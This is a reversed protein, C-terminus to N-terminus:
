HLESDGRVRACACIMLGARCIAELSALSALRDTFVPSKVTCSPIREQLNANHREQRTRPYIVTCIWLGAIDHTALVFASYKALTGLPISILIDPASRWFLILEPRNRPGVSSLLVAHAIGSTLAM